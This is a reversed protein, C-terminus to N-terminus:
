TCKKKLNQVILTLMQGIEADRPKLTYMSMYLM